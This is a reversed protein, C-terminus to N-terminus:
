RKHGFASALLSMGNAMRGVSVPNKFGPPFPIPSSSLVKRVLRVYKTSRTYSADFSNGWSIGKGVMSTKVLESSSGSKFIFGYAADMSSLWDGIPYFWDVVFSYPVKEWLVELPNTMGVSSLANFFTNGPTYDLRVFAGRFGRQEWEMAATVGSTYVWSDNLSEREAGKVSVIWGDRPATQLAQTAGYVDSLLPKWGYQLELWNRPALRPNVGLANAAQRFNGKQLANYSKGIRSAVSGVLDATQQAEAFAVGLNVKQNKLMLLAKINCRNVAGPIFVPTGKGGFNGGGFFSTPLTGQRLTYVSGGRLKVSGQSARFRDLNLFYAKPYLWGKPKPSRVRDPRSIAYSHTMGNFQGDYTTNGTTTNVTWQDYKGVISGSQDDSM